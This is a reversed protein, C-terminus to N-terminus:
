VHHVIFSGFENSSVMSPLFILFFFFPVEGLNKGTVMVIRSALYQFIISAFNIFASLIMLHTGLMAGAEIAAVWKGLDLYELSLFLEAQFITFVQLKVGSM